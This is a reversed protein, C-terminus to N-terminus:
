GVKVKVRVVGREEEGAMKFVGDRFSTSTQEPNQKGEVGVHHDIVDHHPPPPPCQGLEELEHDEEAEITCSTQLQIIAM